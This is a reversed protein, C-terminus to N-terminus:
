YKAQLQDKNLFGREYEQIVKKKFSESYRGGPSVDKSKVKQDEM